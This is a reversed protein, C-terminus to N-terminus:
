HGDRIQNAARCPNRRGPCNLTMFRSIVRRPKRLCAGRASKGQAPQAITASRYAPAVYQARMQDPRVGIFDDIQEAKSDSVVKGGIIKFGRHEGIRGTGGINAVHELFFVHDKVGDDRARTATIRFHFRHRGICTLEKILTGATTGLQARLRAIAAYETGVARQRAWGLLSLVGSAAAGCPISGRVGEM